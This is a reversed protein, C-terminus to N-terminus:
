TDEENMQLAMAELDPHLAIAADYFREWWEIRAILGNVEPDNMDIGM